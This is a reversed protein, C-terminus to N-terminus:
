LTLVRPSHLRIVHSRTHTCARARACVCVLVCVISDPLQCWAKAKCVYPGPPTVHGWVECLTSYLDVCRFGWGVKLHSSLIWFGWPNLQAPICLQSCSVGDVECLLSPLSQGGLNDQSGCMHRYECSCACACMPVHVHVYYM